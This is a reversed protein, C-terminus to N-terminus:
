LEPRPKKRDAGVVLRSEPYRSRWSSWPLTELGEVSTLVTGKLPGAVALLGGDREHWLSQTGRDYFIPRQNMLYGSVGMTIRRGNIVPNYVGVAATPPEFPRFVILLPEEGVTDNVVEVKSLVLIPYAARGGARRLGAVLAADPIKGWHQGGSQEVIPYDIARIVDRGMPESIQRATLEGRPIHFWEHKGDRWGAWLLTQDGEDHCWNDPRRAHNPEVHIDVYGVLASLETKAQQARLQRFEGLLMPGQVVIFWLLAVIAAGAVGQVALYALSRRPRAVPIDAQAMVRVGGPNDRRSADIM